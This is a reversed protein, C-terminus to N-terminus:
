LLGDAARISLDNYIGSTIEEELDYKRISYTDGNKQYVTVERDEMDITWYERVGARMYLRLKTKTDYIYNSPSLIEIVWDPAGNCGKDDIKNKDCIVSIDPEVVTKDDAFLRVGFPASFVECDGKNKKIHNYISYSLFMSMRQHATNPEAMDYFQGNVLEARRGEPLNYYDEVTFETKIDSIAVEM